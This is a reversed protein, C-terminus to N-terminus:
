AGSESTLRPQPLIRRPLGAFFVRYAALSVYWCILATWVQHSFFHAGRAVQVMTLVLGFLMVLWFLGRALRRRGAHRAAFVLPFFSYASAAHGGPWCQGSRAGPPVPQFLHFYPEQGGFMELGIPCTQLSAHKVATVAAAALLAAALAYWLPARLPRLSELRLSALAALTLLFVVARTFEKVWDHLVKELLWDHWLPFGKGPTYYQASLSVDLGFGLLPVLMLAGLIAPMVLDAPSLPARSGTGGTGDFFRRLRSM